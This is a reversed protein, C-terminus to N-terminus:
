RLTMPALTVTGSPDRDPDTNGVPRSYAIAAALRERASPEIDCTTSTGYMVDTRDDTHFFGMAHGLEHRVTSPRIASAGACNCGSGHQYFLDITGGEVAVEAQGCRDSFPGTPWEVTIWGAKSRRTDTGREITATLRGNTWIPFTDRIARETLDLLRPDIKTGADDVTTLYISPNRTWRRLPQLDGPAEFGNRVIQRYFNLDFGAVRIADVSVSHSDRAAVVVSRPVISSATLSLRVTSTPPMQSLFAGAADTVTLQGGVDVSVGGLPQGGNTAALHGDLTVVADTADAPTPASSSSGCASVILCAAFVGPAVRM